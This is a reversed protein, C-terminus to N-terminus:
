KDGQSRHYGGGANFDAVRFLQELLLVRALAHPLTLQSLALVHQARARVAPALGLDSGVVLVVRGAGLWAAMSAALHETTMGQGREDLAVLRDHPRLLSLLRDGEAARAREPDHGRGQEPRVRVMDLSVFRRIREAYVRALAEWEREGQRGVWAILVEGM